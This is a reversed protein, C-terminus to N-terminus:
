LLRSSAHPRSRQWSGERDTRAPRPAAVEIDLLLAYQQVGFIERDRPSGSPRLRDITFKIANAPDYV